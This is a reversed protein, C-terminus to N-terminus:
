ICKHFDQCWVVNKGESRCFNFWGWFFSIIVAKDMRNQFEWKAIMLNEFFHSM